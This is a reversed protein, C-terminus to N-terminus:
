SLLIDTFAFASFTRITLFFHSRDTRALWAIQANFALLTYKTLLSYNISKKSQNYLVNPISM